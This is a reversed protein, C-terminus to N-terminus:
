CQWSVSLELLIALAVLGSTSFILDLGLRNLFKAILMSGQVFKEM